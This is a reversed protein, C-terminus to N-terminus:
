ASELATSCALSPLCRRTFGHIAVYTNRRDRSEGARHGLFRSFGSARPQYSYEIFNWPHLMQGGNSLSEFIHM